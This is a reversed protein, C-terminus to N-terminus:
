PSAEGSGEAVGAQVSTGAAKGDDEALRKVLEPKNGSVPLNRDALEARLEEVTFDGYDVAEDEEAGEDVAEVTSGEVEETEVHGPEGPEANVNSAGGHVTIKAMENERALQEAEQIPDDTGCQPCRPADPAYAATCGRCEWTSM